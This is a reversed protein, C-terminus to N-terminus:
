SDTGVFQMEQACSVLLPTVLNLKRRAPFWSRRLSFSIGFNPNLQRHRCIANGARLFRTIADGFEVEQACSVLKPTALLCIQLGSKGVEVL